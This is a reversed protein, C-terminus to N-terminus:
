AHLYFWGWEYLHVLEVSAPLDDYELLFERLERVTNFQRSKGYEYKPDRIKICGRFPLRFEKEKRTLAELLERTTKFDAHFLRNRYAEATPLRPVFKYTIARDVKQTNSM